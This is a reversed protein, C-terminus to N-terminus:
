QVKYKSLRAIERSEKLRKMEGEVNQKQSMLEAAGKIIKEQKQKRHISPYRLRYLSKSRAPRDPISNRHSSIKRVEGSRVKPGGLRSHLPYRTEKGPNFRGPRPRLWGGM